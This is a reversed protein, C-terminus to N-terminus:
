PKIKAITNRKQPIKCGIEKAKQLFFDDTMGAIFDRVTIVPNQSSIEDDFFFQEVNHGNNLQELCHDFLASYCDAIAPMDAKLEQRLYISNYNFRKLQYMAEAIEPSFDIYPKDEGPTQPVYSATLLDTVFSYVISGNHQWPSKYM